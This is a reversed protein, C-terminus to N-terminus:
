VRGPLSRGALRCRQLVDPDDALTRPLIITVGFSRNVLNMEHERVGPRGTPADISIRSDELFRIIGSIHELGITFLATKRRITGRDFESEIVDPINQLMAATRLAQLYRLESQLAVLDGSRGRSHMLKRYGSRVEEYLWRDEVQRASLVDNELLLMEANVFGSEDSLRQVLAMTDLPAATGGSVLQVEHARHEGDRFFGEPLLLELNENSHLWEGIRYVEAQTQVVTAGGCSREDLPDRHSIGVIYLQKQSDPNYQYLITGYDAPLVPLDARAAHCLLSAAVAAVVALLVQRFHLPPIHMDGHHVHGHLASLRFQM